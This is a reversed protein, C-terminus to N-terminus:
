KISVFTKVEADSLNQAKEGYVDFNAAYKREIGSQWIETWTQKLCDPLRGKSKFVLYKSAPITWGILGAPINDLNKVKCGIV